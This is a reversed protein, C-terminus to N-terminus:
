ATVQHFASLFTEMESKRAITVRMQNPLAPFLRGVRVGHQKLSQILPVVPTKMDIMIFTGQSPISKYGLLDAREDPYRNAFEFANAM